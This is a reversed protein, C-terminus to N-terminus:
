LMANSYWLKCQCIIDEVLAKSEMIQALYRFSDNKENSGSTSSKGMRASAVQQEIWDPSTM